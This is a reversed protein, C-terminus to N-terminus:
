KPRCIIEKIKRGQMKKEYPPLDLKFFDAGKTAEMIIATDCGGGPEYAKTGTGGLAIVTEGVSIMGVEAAMLVEQVSVKMGECFRRLLEWAENPHDFKHDGTFLVKHGLEELKSALEPPFNNKFGIVVMKIDTGELYDLAMKATYGGSSSVIITKIGDELAREKSLRLTESTNAKGMTEFYTTNGIM